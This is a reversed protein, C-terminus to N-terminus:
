IKSHFGLSIRGSFFVRFFSVQLIDHKWLRIGCIGTPLLDPLYFDGFSTGHTPGTIEAVDLKSVLGIGLSAMFTTAAMVPVGRYDRVGPPELLVGWPLPTHMELTLTLLASAGM